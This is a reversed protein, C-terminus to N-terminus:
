GIVGHDSIYSPKTSTLAIAASLAKMVADVAAGAPVSTCSTVSEMLYRRESVTSSPDTMARPRSRWAPELKVVTSVSM